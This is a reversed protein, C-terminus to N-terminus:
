PMGKWRRLAWEGIFCILAFVFIAPLVGKLDWLPKIWVETIPADRHPLNRAFSDLDGPEVIRGGTQRAITELLPRNTKISRFEQAERDVVWGTEVEDIKLGEADTVVAKAVYSGDDRPVYVAEFLGAETPVPQAALQVTRGKTDSAEITVSADEM